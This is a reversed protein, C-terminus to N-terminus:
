FIFANTYRNRCLGCSLQLSGSTDAQQRLWVTYPHRNRDKRWPAEGKGERGRGGDRGRERQWEICCLLLWSLRERYKEAQRDIVTIRGRCSLKSKLAGWAPLSAALLFPWQNWDKIQPSFDLDVNFQTTSWCSATTGKGFYRNYWAKHTTKKCKM